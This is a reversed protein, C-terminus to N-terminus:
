SSAGAFFEELRSGAEVLEDVDVAGYSLRLFRQGCRGFAAGPITVVHARQLIASALQESDYEEVTRVFAFFGGASPEWRLAPIRALAAQLASRRKRLEEHFRTIYNWDDRIAAEVAAQSIAPACIIMADQIKIAEECVRRDAILFGVRWGTMAFSKSFTGVIIVNERWAPISGASSHVGDFVFHMYTEDCILTIGRVALERVIRELQDRAIV